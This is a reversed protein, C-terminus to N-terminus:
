KVLLSISKHWFNKPLLGDFNLIYVTSVENVIKLDSTPGVLYDVSCGERMLEEKRGCFM